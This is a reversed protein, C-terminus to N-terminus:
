SAVKEGRTLHACQSLLLNMKQERRSDSWDSLQQRWRTGDSQEERASNTMTEARLRQSSDLDSKRLTTEKNRKCLRQQLEEAPLLGLRLTVGMTESDHYPNTELDQQLREQRLVSAQKKGGGGSRDLSKRHVRRSAHLEGM